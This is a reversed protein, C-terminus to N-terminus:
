GSRSLVQIMAEVASQDTVRAFRLARTVAAIADRDADHESPQVQDQLAAISRAEDLLKNLEKTLKLADLENARLVTKV